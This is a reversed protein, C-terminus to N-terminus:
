DLADLLVFGAWNEAAAYKPIERVHKQAAQLAQTKTMGNLYCRYFEKMLVSTAQDPVEWLSMLISQAGAKKFGRQLGFVGEKNIKGLGTECASLVVLDLDRFYTSAIEQATLVGDETGDPIPNGSLGYNAGSLLLGSRTMAKDEVFTAEDDNYIMFQYEDKDKDEAALDDYYFGHTALHILNIPKEELLYFSDETGNKGTYLATHISKVAKAISDINSIESKTWELNSWAGRKAGLLGRTKSSNVHGTKEPQRASKGAKPTMNYDLDGFLAIDKIKVDKKRNILERTSSVRHINWYDSARHTNDRDLVSELASDLVSELAISNLDDVPSYYIISANELEPKLQGWIFFFPQSKIFSKEDFPAFIDIQDAEYLKSGYDVCEAVVKDPICKIIHPKDYGKRLLLAYYIRVPDGDINRTFSHVFEIAVEGDTLSDRVDQWRGFDNFNVAQLEELKQLMDKELLEIQVQNAEYDSQLSLWKKYKANLTNDNMQEITKRFMSSSALQTGKWLLAFDYATPTDCIVRLDNDDRILMNWWSTNNYPSNKLFTSRQLETLLTFKRLSERYDNVVQPLIADLEDYKELLWALTAHHRNIDPWDSDPISNLAKIRMLTEYSKEYDGDYLYSTSLSLLDGYDDSKASNAESMKVAQDSMGNERYLDSLATQLSSKEKDSYKDSKLAASTINAIYDFAEKNNQAYVIMWSLDFFDDTGSAAKKEYIWRAVNFAKRDSDIAKYYAFLTDAADLESTGKFGKARLASEDVVKSYSDSLIVDYLREAYKEANPDYKITPDGALINALEYQIESVPGRLALEKCVNSFQSDKGADLYAMSLQATMHLYEKSEAGYQNRLYDCYEHLFGIADDFRNNNECFAFILMSMCKEYNLGRYERKPDDKFLTKALQCAKYGYQIALDIKGADKAYIGVMFLQVMVEDSVDGRLYKQKDLIDLRIKLAEEYKGYSKLADSLLIHCDIWQDDSSYNVKDVISLAKNVENSINDKLNVKTTYTIFYILSYLYDASDDGLSANLELDQKILRLAEQYNGEKAYTEALSRM